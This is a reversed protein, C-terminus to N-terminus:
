RPSSVQACLFWMLFVLVMRGPMPGQDGSVYLLEFCTLVRVEKSGIVLNKLTKTRFIRFLVKEFKRVDPSEYM